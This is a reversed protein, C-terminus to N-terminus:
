APIPQPEHSRASPRCFQQLFVKLNATVIVNARGLSAAAVVHRDNKDPLCIGDILSEYGHVAADPFRDNMALLRMDIRPAPIDPRVRILTARVESLIAVSWLPAFLRKEASRLLTDTLAMPVLVNADLLATFM